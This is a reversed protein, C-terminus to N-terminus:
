EGTQGFQGLWETTTMGTVDKFIRFFSRESTFGALTYAEFVKMDPHLRLLQQVYSVRYENVFQTFTMGRKDKICDTVYRSNTGLVEAVDAVKLESNRFLQRKDMLQCIRELLEENGNDTIFEYQEKRSETSDTQRAPPVVKTKLWRVFLWAGVLLVGGITLLCWPLSDPWRSAATTVDDQRGLPILWASATPTFNDFDYDTKTSGGIIALNGQPTLAPVYFGCDPLPDTCYLTLPAPRETYGISVVYLRKDKGYGCLYAQKAHRDAMIYSGDYIIPGAGLPSMMPIHCVTPLLTFVTDEVLVVAVQGAPQGKLEPKERTREFNRVAMLYTYRGQTEDGIFGADATTPANYTLPKWQQLLPVTFPEGHLRDVVITDSLHDRTDRDSLILIDGESTRFLFPVVREVTVPKVSTFFKQGDFMEINDGDYWNGTIVVQGSDLEMASALTRKQDLCGFGTFSHNTPDYMEVGYTQGVGMEEKSGGALLVRGSRLVLATGHDHTYTMPLQHWEGDMLYEATATPVFGNTHGGAVMLEGGACFVAHGERPINLDPLRQPTIQVCPCSSAKGTALAPIGVATAFLLLFLRDLM